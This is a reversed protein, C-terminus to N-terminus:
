SRSTSRPNHSVTSVQQVTARMVPWTREIEDVARQSSVFSSSIEADVASGLDSLVTKDGARLQYPDGLSVAQGLGRGDESVLISPRRQSLFALHAHVRYGVHVDTSEYFDIASLDYSADLVKFDCSSAVRALARSALAARWSTYEDNRIGRHFVCTREAKPFRRALYRLVRMAELTFQRGAPPTFVIRRIVSPTILSRGMSDMDYWAVCGSRKVDGVNASRLLELSLDDRVGSWIGSQHIRGLAELSEDSFQFADPNDRPQGSWGVGILFVPLSVREALFPFVDPCFRSALGPGGGILIADAREVLAPDIPLWREHLVLDQQPLLTRLLRTARERILFDGVNKKAGHLQILM